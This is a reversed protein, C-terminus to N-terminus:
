ATEQIVKRLHALAPKYTDPGVYELILPADPTYKAALTVFTKYDLDGQGAPVGRDVHLKRDKAHLCDIFPHLQEFMEEVDNLELLNAPDLLARLRPSGIEELFVRTRKASAFFHRYFPEFLVVSDYQEALAALEKATETMRQWVEQQFHYEVAPAPKNPDYFYGAETIFSHVNMHAGIRMMAEFYALNAKREAADPHILNTYVGISHISIGASRYADAIERCREASLDSVDNRGNYKWYNSDSQTLFLQITHIGEAALEWALRANTYTPFETTAMGITLDRPTKGVNETFGTPIAAFSAAIMGTKLLTRRTILPQMM